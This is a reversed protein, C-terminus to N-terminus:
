GGGEGTEEGKEEEESIGEIPCVVRSSDMSFSEVEEQGGAEAIGGDEQEGRVVGMYGDEVEEGVGERDRGCLLAWFVGV